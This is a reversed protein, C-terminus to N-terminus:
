RLVTRLLIAEMMRGMYNAFLSGKRFERFINFRIKNVTFIEKSTVMWFLILFLQGAKSKGKLNNLHKQGEFFIRYEKKIGERKAWAALAGYLKERSKGYLKTGIYVQSIRNEGHVGRMAVPEKIQGPYLRCYYALRLLFDSDQHLRLDENFWGDLKELASRKITLGDLHIHGVDGSMGILYEFLTRPAVDEKTFTTLWNRGTAFFAAKLRDNEFNAGTAEYGGDADTNNEFISETEEFRIPLYYDDADLFAIHELIANMLGVNRSAGAGRNERKHHTLLKIFDNSNALEMCKQYTHDTSGDEVLIIEGVEKCSLASEVARGVFREANYAPIIM